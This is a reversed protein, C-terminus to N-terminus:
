VVWVSLTPSFELAQFTKIHSTTQYRFLHCIPRRKIIHLAQCAEVELSRMNVFRVQRAQNSIKCRQLMERESVVYYGIQISANKFLHGTRQFREVQGFELEGCYIYSWKRGADPPIQSLDVQRVIRPITITIYHPKSFPKLFGIGGDDVLSRRFVHISTICRLRPFMYGHHIKRIENSHVTECCIRISPQDSHYHDGWNQIQWGWDSGEEVSISPMDLIPVEYVLYLLRMNIMKITFFKCYSTEFIHKYKM